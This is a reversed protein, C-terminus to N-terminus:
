DIICGNAENPFELDEAFVFTDVDIESEIRSWYPFSTEISVFRECGISIIIGRSGFKIIGDM